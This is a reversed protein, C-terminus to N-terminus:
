SLLVSSLSVITLKDVLLIPIILRSIYFVITSYFIIKIMKIAYSIIINNVAM